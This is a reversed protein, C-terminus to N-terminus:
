SDFARRAEEADEYPRWSIVKEDRFEFIWSLVDAYAIENDEEWRWERMVKMLVKGGASECSKILVTQQVGGPKKTAWARAEDRGTRLGKMSHIEVDPDLLDM